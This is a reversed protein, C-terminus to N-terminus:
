IGLQIKVKSGQIKLFLIAAMHALFFQIKISYYSVNDIESQKITKNVYVNDLFSTTNKPYTLKRNFICIKVAM